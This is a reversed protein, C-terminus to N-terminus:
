LIHYIVLAFATPFERVPCVPVPANTPEVDGVKTVGAKPVGDDPLRAFQVPYGLQGQSAYDKSCM